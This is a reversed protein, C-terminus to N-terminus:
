VFNNNLLTIKTGFQVKIKSPHHTTIFHGLMHSLMHSLVLLNSIICM